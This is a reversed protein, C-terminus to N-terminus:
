LSRRMAQHPIGADDYEDGVPEFGLRRYFALAHTQANVMVQWHGLERALAIMRQMLADGIGLGRHSALVAVRGIHGDPLLRACGVAGGGEDLALAHRCDPDLGDWELAEPVGQEQVFVTMRVGRLAEADRDWDALRIRWAGDEAPMESAAPTM